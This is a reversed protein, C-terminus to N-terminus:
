ATGFKSRLFEGQVLLLVAPEHLGPRNRASALARELGGLQDALEETAARGAVRANPDPLALFPDLTDPLYDTISARVLHEVDPDVTETLARVLLAELHDNIRTLAKTADATIRGSARARHLVDRLQPDLDAILHGSLRPLGADCAALADNLAATRSRRRLWERATLAAAGCGVVVPGAITGLGPTPPLQLAAFGVTAGGALVAADRRPRPHGLSLGELALTYSALRAELTLARVPRLRPELRAFEGRAARLDRALLGREGRRERGSAAMAELRARLADLRADVGAAGHEADLHSLPLRLLQYAQSALRGAFPGPVATLLRQRAAMWGSGDM